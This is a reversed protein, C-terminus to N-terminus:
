LGNLSDFPVKTPLFNIIKFWLQLVRNGKTQLFLWVLCSSHYVWLHSHTIQISRLIFPWRIYIINHIYTVPSNLNPHASFSVV